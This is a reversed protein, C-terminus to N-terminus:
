KLYRKHAWLHNSIRNLAIFSMRIAQAILKPPEAVLETQFAGSIWNIRRCSISDSDYFSKEGALFLKWSKKSILLKKQGSATGLLRDKRQCFLFCSLHWCDFLCIEEDFAFLERMGTAQQWWKLRRLQCTTAVSRPVRHCRRDQVIWCTAFSLANLAPFTPKNTSQEALFTISHRHIIAASALSIANIPYLFDLYQRSPNNTLSTLALKFLARMSANEWSKM